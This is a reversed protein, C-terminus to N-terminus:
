PRPLRSAEPRSGNPVLFSRTRYQNGPHVASNPCRLDNAIAKFIGRRGNISKYALLIDDVLRRRHDSLAAWQKAMLASGDNPDGIFTTSMYGDVIDMQEETFDGERLLDMVSTQDDKIFQERLEAPGDFDDSLVWLPDFPDPWYDASREYIKNYAGDVLADVEAQTGNKIQEGTRWYIDDVDPSAVISQGYRILESWTFPQFWHVWTAGMELPRGMRDDTWARGGIRDRAEVVEVSVGATQLERAAVLGSFGAGVVVVHPNAM